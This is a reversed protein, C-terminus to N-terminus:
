IEDPSPLQRALFVCLIKRVKNTVVLLRRWGAIDTHSTRAFYANGITDYSTTEVYVNSSLNHRKQLYAASSTSEWIPLGSSDMLQPLHATGASLCLIPLASKTKSTEKFRHVVAAADDCRRQVYVPPEDLESPRGGGLVLIADFKKLRAVPIESPDHFFNASQSVTANSLMGRTAVKASAVFLIILAVFGSLARALLKPSQLPPHIHDRANRRLRRPRAM